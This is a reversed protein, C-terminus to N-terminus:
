QDKGQQLKEYEAWKKKDAAEHVKQQEEYYAKYDGSGFPSIPQMTKKSAEAAFKGQELRQGRQEGNGHGEAMTCEVNKNPDPGSPENISAAVM